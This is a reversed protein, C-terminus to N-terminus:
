MYCHGHNLMKNSNQLNDQSSKIFILHLLDYGNM